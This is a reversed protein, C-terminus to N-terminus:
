KRYSWGSAYAYTMMFMDPVPNRKGVYTMELEPDFYYNVGDLEIEVWAHPQMDKAVTGSIARAEYGLQRALAWFVSAYCYCNGRGSELMRLADEIEWGTARFAYAARRLYAFSDRTYLYAARLLELPEAGPNEEMMGALIETIYGDLTEDGSTYKGDPGFHLSGLDGNRLFSGQQDVCYLSGDFHVFGPELLPPIEATAWHDTGGPSHPICAELLATRDPRTPDIDPPLVAEPALSLTETESRGLLGNLLQAVQARTFSSQGTLAAGSGPFFAETVAALTPGDVPEPGSPLAPLEDAAEPATLAQIAEALQDRTMPEDPRLFGREDPFLYAGHETLRAQWRAYYACDGSVPTAFPRADAGAADTWGLLRCGPRQASFWRPLAEQAVTQSSLLTGAGDYFSVTFSPGPTEEPARSECGAWLLALILLAAFVLIKRKRM